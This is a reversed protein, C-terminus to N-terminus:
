SEVLVKKTLKKFLPITRLAEMYTYSVPVILLTLLTSTILGGAIAVAMPQRMENGVGIGLAVPFVGAVTSFATMMIPRFRASGAEILAEKMSMGKGQQQNAYDVLLIGNKTVLGVLLVLGIMSFLNFTNGTIYLLGFSGIFSLPLALMITFPHIFSEFQSGLVMYTFLIALIFAIGLNYITEYYLETRGTHQASFGEPLVERTIKEIALMAPALTIGELNAFITVARQRDFRNIISPGYAQHLTVFNDLEILQGRASRVWIKKIDTPLDRERDALRVRVDYSEGGRKFEVVDVGGILAGIANAIAEVPVGADAAKERNIAVRIEPKGLELNRDVDIFGPTLELREM